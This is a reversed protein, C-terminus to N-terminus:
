GGSRDCRLCVDTRHARRLHTNRGAVRRVQYEFFQGKVFRLVLSSKGTGMDGLLVQAAWAGAGCILQLPVARADDHTCDQCGLSGRVSRELWGRRAM